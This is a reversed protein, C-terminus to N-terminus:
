AMWQWDALTALEAKWRILSYYDM